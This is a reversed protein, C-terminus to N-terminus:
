RAVVRVEIRDPKRLHEWAERSLHFPDCPPQGEVEFRVPRGKPEFSSIEQGEGLGPMFGPKNIRYTRVLTMAEM